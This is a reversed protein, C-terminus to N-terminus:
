RSERKKKSEIYYLLVEKTTKAPVYGFEEILKKNSLVPRYRLFNVHEPGYPSLGLSKLIGLITKLLWAPIRLLPKHLIEAIEQMSLAGTGAVNYIGEKKELLGKVIIEAVDEDWIMVFRTDGGPIDLVFKKDFIASLQNNVTDGLITGPRLILQKLQPYKKRYEALLEEVLRKHYSYPFEENGRLPTDETIWEPNDPHYGYAAGSSTVIIQKVGNKVCADLINRTGNVEVDYLFERTMWRAPSVIAALHVVAEVNYDRIIKSIKPSRIDEKLYIVSSVRREPSPERVDVAVITEPKVDKAVLHELVKTGIYGTGGTILVSKYVDNKEPM